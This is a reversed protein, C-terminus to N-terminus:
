HWVGIDLINHMFEKLYFLYLSFFLAWKYSENLTHSYSMYLANVELCTISNSNYKLINEFSFYLHGSKLHNATVEWISLSYFAFYCRIDLHDVILERWSYWTKLNYDLFLGWSESLISRPSLRGEWCIWRFYHKLLHCLEFFLLSNQFSLWFVEQGFEFIFTLLDLLGIIQIRMWLKNIWKSWSIARWRYRFNM